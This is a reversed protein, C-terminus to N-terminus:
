CRDFEHLRGVLLLHTEAVQVFTLKLGVGVCADLEDLQEIGLAGVGVFLSTYSGVPLRDGVSKEAIALEFDLLAVLDDIRAVRHLAEAGVGVRLVTELAHFTKFVHLDKNREGVDHWGEPERGSGLACDLNYELTYLVVSLIISFHAVAIISFHAM